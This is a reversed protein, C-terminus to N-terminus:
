GFLDKVRDLVRRERIESGDEDAWKQLVELREDDLDKPRPVALELSVVHDGRGRGGLQDVGKGRLRFHAGHRSGAPIELSETGHLTEVEVKAGLVAEPFSVEVSGLIDNGHREFRDHPEVIVDIYLDGPPGNRPGHEGEGARRLRTGTDVGAPVSIGVQRVQEVRGRGKCDRCPDTIVEGEGRCQPCTRAVAFFGQTVRVQGRGGCASCQQPRSGEGAGSGTCSGCTELRPIELTREVGFAAEELTLLLEYRLDAGPRPGRRARRGGFLDAFGSGFFDGLIDAFDSFTEPDFGAPGGGSRHGFRDYRARKDADSLVAYAESAEKFKAEAEADGPNRDPHFRVALKRYAAKIARADADREVGLVEYYDRASM